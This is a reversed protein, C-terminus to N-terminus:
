LLKSIAYNIYWLIMVNNDQYSQEYFVLYINDLNDIRRYEVTIFVCHRLWSTYVVKTLNDNCPVNQMQDQVIIPKLSIHRLIFGVPLTWTIRVTSVSWDLWQFQFLLIIILWNITNDFCLTYTYSYTKDLPDFYHM